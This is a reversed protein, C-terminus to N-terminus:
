DAHSARQLIEIWTGFTEQSPLYFYKSGSPAEEFGKELPERFRNRPTIGMKEVQERAKNIDEVLVCLECIAGEGKEDLFDKWVGTEPEILEVYTGGSSLMAYKIKEGPVDIHLISSYPGSEPLKWGLVESYFKVSKEINRVVIGVHDYPGLM